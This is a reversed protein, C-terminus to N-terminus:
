VRKVHIENELTRRSLIQLMVIYAKFLQKNFDGSNLNVGYMLVKLHQLKHFKGNRWNVFQQSSEWRFISTKFKKSIRQCPLRSSHLLIQLVDSNKDPKGRMVSYVMFLWSIIRSFKKWLKVYLFEWKLNYSPINM